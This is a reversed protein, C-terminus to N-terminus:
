VAERCHNAFIWIFDDCSKLSLPPHIMNRKKKWKGDTPIAEISFSSYPAFIENDSVNKDIKHPFLEYFEKM